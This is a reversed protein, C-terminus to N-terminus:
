SQQNITFKKEPWWAYIIVSILSILIIPLLLVNKM